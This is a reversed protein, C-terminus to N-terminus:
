RVILIKAAQIKKGSIVTVTYVGPTQGSLNFGATKLKGDLHVIQQVISKGNGNEIKVTVNGSPYQSLDVNFKGSTPNPYVKLNKNAADTAIPESVMVKDDDSATVDKGGARYEEFSPGPTFIYSQGTGPWTDNWIYASTNSATHETSYVSVFDDDSSAIAITSYNYWDSFGPGYVFQIKNTGEFLWVQFLKNATPSEDDTYTKVKFEVVLKRSGTTGVTKYKIYGDTDTTLDEGWGMIVPYTACPIAAFIYWDTVPTSGFGILGNSSVSFQTYNVKNFKFTFPLSMVASSEEDAMTGFLTTAGSSINTLAVQTNTDYTYNGVNQAQILTGSIFLILLSLYIKKM